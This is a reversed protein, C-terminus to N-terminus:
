SLLLAKYEQPTNLNTFPKDDDFAVLTTEARDLLHGLRHNHELLQQKALPLISRKYIGCLPQLGSPSKAITADSSPKNEEMIKKIVKEDVLPADVSLVFIEDAQLEEFSSLLGVLPSSEEYNDQIVKCEFDFKDTKSSLYVKNFLQSLKHYQFESMSKFNEFPLLAKDQGMRSSKGGAFIVVPINYM